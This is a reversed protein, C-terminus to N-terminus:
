QLLIPNCIVRIVYCSLTVVNKSVVITQLELTFSLELHYESIEIPIDGVMPMFLPLCDFHNLVITCEHHDVFSLDAQTLKPEDHICAPALPSGLLHHEHMPIDYGM